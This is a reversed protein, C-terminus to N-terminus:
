VSSARAGGELVRFRAWTGTSGTWCRQDVGLLVPAIAAGASLGYYALRRTDIDTRTELYDLSRGM